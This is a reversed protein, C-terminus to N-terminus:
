AAKKKPTVTVSGKFYRGIFFAAFLYLYSGYMIFGAMNNEKEIMCTSDTTYYYFGALTVAVGVVMQSIQAITIIIAKM